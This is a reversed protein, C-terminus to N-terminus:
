LAFAVAATFLAPWRFGPTNRAPRNRFWLAPAQGSREPQIFAMPKNLIAASLLTPPVGDSVFKQHPTIHSNQLPITARQRLCFILLHLGASVRPKERPRNEHPKVASIQGNRAPHRGNRADDSANKGTRDPLIKPNTLIQRSPQPCLRSALRACRPCPTKGPNVHLTRCVPPKWEGGHPRRFLPGM